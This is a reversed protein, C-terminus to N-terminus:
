QEYAKLVGKAIEGRTMRMDMAQKEIYRHAQPETMNLYQILVCKARGILRTEEVQTLLKNKELNIQLIRNRTSMVLRLADRFASRTVPKELVYVGDGGVDLWVNEALDKRVLIVVGSAGYRALERSLESGFEDALPTNIVVVDYDHRDVSERVEASSHLVTIEDCCGLEDIIEYFLNGGKETGSALLIRKM